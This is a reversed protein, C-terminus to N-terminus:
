FPSAKPDTKLVAQQMGMKLVHKSYSLAKMDSAFSRASAYKLLIFSVFSFDILCQFLLLSAVGSGNFIHV